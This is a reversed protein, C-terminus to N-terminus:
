KGEHDRKGIYEILDVVRNSYGWENDYWSVVKIFRPSFVLSAKADYVTSLSSGVFDQSVLPEDTYGLINKLNTESALKMKNNLDEHTVDKKLKVTLDVVSVDVTPVRFAMGTVKGLLHPMVLACAKAAGTTSPIINLSAARGGRWDKKSSSDVVAQSATMAHVTTMLGEEIGYNDDLVKLIPALGNTTCSACSIFNNKLPNYEKENVGMVITKVANPDEEKKSPASFIVKKAGNNLHPQASVSTLFQGTCEAVYDVKHDGWKIDNPNRFTSTSIKKGNLVLTEAGDANKEIEINGNWVGHVSDYKLQYAMYKLDSGSNIHNLSISPGSKKKDGEKDLIIRTVQRGIRGFGNIGTRLAAANLRTSSLSSAAKPAFGLISILFFFLYFNIRLYHFFFFKM